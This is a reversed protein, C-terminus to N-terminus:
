KSSKRHRGLKLFEPIRLGSPKKGGLNTESLKPRQGSTYGDGTSPRGLIRDGPTFRRRKDGVM